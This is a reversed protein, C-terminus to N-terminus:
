ASTPRRGAWTSRSRTRRVRGAARRAGRGVVGGAPGSVLVLAPHAAAEEVDRRRRVLAHRAARAARAERVRTPSRASTAAAVPASTRTPPRRRPASTSASSPRSRTRRSSTRARAAPPAARRRGGARPDPRPVLLAPLRRGGGRRRDPLSDLDLPELVGDPGIRERVGYCRELPVLPEPHEACLRYLHARTQRRLHLLHEFGETAVFATRAGKRELLANTAITTGHTFREVDTAGVHRARRRPGVGGTARPRCRRRACVSTRRAARRRHVHRRRRHRPDGHSRTRVPGVRAPLADRRRPRRPRQFRPRTRNCRGPRRELTDVLREEAPAGVVEAWREAFVQGFEIVSFAAVLTAVKARREAARVPDRTLAAGALLEAYVIAPVVLAEDGIEALSSELDGGREIAVIASTDAVLGM